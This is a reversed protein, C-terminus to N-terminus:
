EYEEQSAAFEDELRGIRASPVMHSARLFPPFPVNVVTLNSGLRRSSSRYAVLADDLQQLLVGSQIM